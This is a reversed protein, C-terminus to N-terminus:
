APMEVSSDNAASAEDQIMIKSDRSSSHYNNAEARDRSGTLYDERKLHHGVETRYQNSSNSRPLSLPSAM